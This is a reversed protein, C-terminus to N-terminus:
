LARNKWWNHFPLLIALGVPRVLKLSFTLEKLEQTAKEHKGLNAWIWAGISDPPETGSNVLDYAFITFDIMVLYADTNWDNLKTKISNCIGRQDNDPVSDAIEMFACGVCAVTVVNDWLNLLNSEAIVNLEPYEKVLTDYLTTAHIQASQLLSDAKDSYIISNVDLNITIEREQFDLCENSDICCYYDKKKTLCFVCKYRGCYHCRGVANKNPHNFCSEEM